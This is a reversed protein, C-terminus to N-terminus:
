RAIPEITLRGFYKIFHGGKSSLVEGARAKREDTPALVLVVFQGDRLAQEYRDKIAMEDNPMGIREAVRLLRDVLGTRGTSAELRAAAAPGHAVRIESELFGGGTLARIAEELQEPTDVIGVIHDTPYRIEDGSVGAQPRDERPQSQSESM